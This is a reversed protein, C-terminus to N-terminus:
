LIIDHYGGSVGEVFTEFNLLFHLGVASRAFFNLFGNLELIRIVNVYGRRVFDETISVCLVPCFKETFHGFGILKISSDDFDTVDYDVGQIIWLGVFEVFECDINALVCALWCQSDVIPVTGFVSETSQYQCMMVEVYPM